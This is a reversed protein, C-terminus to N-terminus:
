KLNRVQNYRLLVSAKNKQMIRWALGTVEDVSVLASWLSSRFESFEFWWLSAGHGFVLVM